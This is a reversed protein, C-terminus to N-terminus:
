INRLYSTNKPLSSYVSNTKYTLLYLCNTRLADSKFKATALHDFFLFINADELEDPQNMISNHGLLKSFFINFNSKGM